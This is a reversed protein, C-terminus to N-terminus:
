FEKVNKEIKQEEDGKDNWRSEGNSMKLKNRTKGWWEKTSKTGSIEHSALKIGKRDSLTKM